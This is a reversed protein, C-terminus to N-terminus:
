SIVNNASAVLVDGKVVTSPYTATSWTPDNSTVGQLIVGTAGVALADIASAGSGVLLGHDLLTSVGTGGETVALDTTLQLDDIIVKGAGKSTININIDADTGDASLTTGALTVGAAVVNTDFTTAKMTTVTPSSSWSADAGTNGILIENTAGVALWGLAVSDSAGIPLAHITQTGLKAKLNSPAVAKNTVTGAITEADSAYTVGAPPAQFSPAAGANATLVYGANVVDSVVGVVNNASAVLVDGKTVTSPYTATSWVPDAGTVGQLIVGTGGVALSTLSGGVNGVQLSHDTTGSLGITLVSGAGSLTINAGNTLTLINLAPIADGATTRFTTPVAPPLVGAGSSIIQSM